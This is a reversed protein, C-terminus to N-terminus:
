VRDVKEQCCACAFAHNESNTPSRLPTFFPRKGTLSVMLTSGGGEEGRVTLKKQRNLRINHNHTNHFTCLCFTIKTMKTKVLLIM